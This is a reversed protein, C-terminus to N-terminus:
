EQPNAVFNINSVNSMPTVPQTTQAFRYRKSDVRVSYTEGAQLNTFAYTGFTGTQLSVPAPLGGGTLTLTANRIPQGGATTISGGISVPGPDLQGGIGWIGTFDVIGSPTSVTNSNPLPVSGAIMQPPGGASSFWLAYNPESGRTDANTYSFIMQAAIGGTEQLKWHRSASNAPLLGALTGDIAKISLFSPNTGLGSLFVTVPSYGNQGVHYTYGDREWTFKREITGDVYGTQRHTPGTHIIKNPGTYVVGDRLDLDFVTLDGDALVLGSPLPPNGSNLFTLKAVSRTPNIEKGTTMLRGSATGEGYYAWQGGTGLEFTPPADFGYTQWNEFFWMSVRSMVDDNNGITLKNSNIVIGRNIEVNRARLTGTQQLTISNGRFSLTDLPGETTGSGSYVQNEGVFYLSTNPFATKITGNNILSDGAFPLEFYELKAGPRIEINRTDAYALRATKNEYIVLDPLNDDEDTNRFPGPDTSLENGFQLVTGNSHLGALQSYRFHYTNSGPTSNQIVIRGGSLDSVGFFYNLDFCAFITSTQGVTCSTVIGGTQYYTFPYESFPSVNEMVRGAANINGGEILINSGTEFLLSDDMETGVNYTGQTVRLDGYVSVAEQPQAVITYNPNNLWLGAGAAIEYPTTFFTRNSLTFTGSIKFTGHNLFLFGSGPTDTTSGRVSFNAASLELINTSSTGKEMTIWSIDTVPGSGGFTANSAGTFVLMAAALNNNTSLDLTGNNTLNGGVTLIHQNANGGGTTFSSNPAITVDGTVTLSFAATEGFRLAAPSTGEVFISKVGSINATGGITVNNAAAATDIIVTAGDAITVNDGATPVIGGAWTSPASWPGGTTTSSTNAEPAAPKIFVGNVVSIFRDPAEGAKAASNLPWAAFSLLLALAFISFIRIM